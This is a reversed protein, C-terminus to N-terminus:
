TEGIRTEGIQREGITQEGHKSRGVFKWRNAMEQNQSTGNIKGQTYEAIQITQDTRIENTKM